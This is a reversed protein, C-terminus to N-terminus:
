QNCQVSLSQVINLNKDTFIINDINSLKKIASAERAIREKVVGMLSDPNLLSDPVAANIENLLTYCEQVNDLQQILSGSNVVDVFYKDIQYAKLDAVSNLNDNYKEILSRKSVTYSIYSAAVFSFTVMAFVMFTIKTGININKFM